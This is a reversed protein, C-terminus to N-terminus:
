VVVGDSRMQLGSDPFQDRDDAREVENIANEFLQGWVMARKDNVLFTSAEMLSGYYYCRPANELVWNSSDTALDLKKYFDMEATYATDPIPALQIEGGVLTYFAPRGTSAGNPFRVDLWEPTAYELRTRPTTNLQFNRMALFGDPLAVYESGISATVRSEMSRLRLRKNLKDECLSIFDPISSDLDSRHLASKLAQQLTTYSTFAM